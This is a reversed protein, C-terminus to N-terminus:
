VNVGPESLDRWAHSPGDYDHKGVIVLSCGCSACHPRDLLDLLDYDDLRDPGFQYPCDTTREPCTLRTADPVNYLNEIRDIDGTALPVVDSM